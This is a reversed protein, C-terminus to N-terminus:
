NPTGTGPPQAPVARWGAGCNQVYPYFGRPNDCYYWNQQPPPGVPAQAV